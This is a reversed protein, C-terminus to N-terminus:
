ASENNYTGKQKYNVLHGDKLTLVQKKMQEIEKQKHHLDIRKQYEILEKERVAFLALNFQFRYSGTNLYKRM